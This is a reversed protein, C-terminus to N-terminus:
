KSILAGCQILGQLKGRDLVSGGHVGSGSCAHGAVGLNQRVDQLHHLLTSVQFLGLTALEVEAWVARMIVVGALAGQDLRTRFQDLQHVLIGSHDVTTGCSEAM